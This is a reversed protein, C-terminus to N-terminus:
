VNDAQSQVLVALPSCCTRQPQICAEPLVRMALIRSSLQLLLVRCIQFRKLPTRLILDYLYLRTPLPERLTVKLFLRTTAAKSSEGLRLAPDAAAM